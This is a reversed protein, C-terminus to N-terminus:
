KIHVLEGPKIYITKKKGTKYSRGSVRVKVRAIKDVRAKLDATTREGIAINHKNKLYSILRQTKM